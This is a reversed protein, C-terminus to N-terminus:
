IHLGHLEDDKYTSTNINGSSSYIYRGPGNRKGNRIMTTHYSTSDTNYERFIANLYDIEGSVWWSQSVRRYFSEFLALDM